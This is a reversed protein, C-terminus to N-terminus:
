KKCIDQLINKLASVVIPISFNQVHKTAQQGMKKCNDLSNSMYVMLKSLKEVDWM